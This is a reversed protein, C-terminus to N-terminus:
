NKLSIIFWNIIDSRNKSTEYYPLGYQLCQEKILKSVEVLTICSEKNEEDSIHFTYDNSTDYRKLLEFREEYTVDSTIFYYIDCISRDIYKIYDQPLLQYVDIVMGYDLENYEGSDIMARIFPAIKRSITQLNDYPSVNAETDIGLEPFTREFGAIISDMCIHQYGYIKSIQQSITSKGSRPVGAIIIHKKM